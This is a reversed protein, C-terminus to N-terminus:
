IGATMTLLKAAFAVAIYCCHLMRIALSRARSKHGSQPHGLMALPGIAAASAIMPDTCDAPSSESLGDRLWADCRKAM